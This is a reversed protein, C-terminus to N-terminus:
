LKKREIILSFYFRIMFVFRLLLNLMRVSFWNWIVKGELIYNLFCGYLYYM